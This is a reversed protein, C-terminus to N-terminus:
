SLMPLPLQGAKDIKIIGDLGMCSNSIHRGIFLECMIEKIQLCRSSIECRLGRKLTDVNQVYPFNGGFNSVVVKGKVPLTILSGYRHRGKFVWKKYKKRKVSKSTDM